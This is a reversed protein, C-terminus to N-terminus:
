LSLSSTTSKADFTKDFKDPGEERAGAVRLTVNEGSWGGEDEEEELEGAEKEGDQAKLKGGGKFM